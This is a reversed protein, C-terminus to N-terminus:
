KRCIIFDEFTGEEKELTRVFEVPLDHEKIWTIIEENTLKKLNNPIKVCYRNMCVEKKTFIVDM